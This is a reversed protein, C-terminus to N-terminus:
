PLLAKLAAILAEPPEDDLGVLEDPSPLDLPFLEEDLRFSLMGDILEVRFPIGDIVCRVPPHGGSNPDVTSM